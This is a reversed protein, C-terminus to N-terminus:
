SQDDTKLSKRNEALAFRLDIFKRAFKAAAARTPFPLTVANDKWFDWVVHKGKVTRARFRPKM